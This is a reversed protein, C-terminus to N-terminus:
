ARTPGTWLFAWYSLWVFLYSLQYAISGVPQLLVKLNKAFDMFAFYQVIKGYGWEVSCRVASMDKNFKKEAPSLCAGKFPGILHRRVPYAPDGYLVYPEGSAQNMHEQLQELIGSAALMFADHRRGEM